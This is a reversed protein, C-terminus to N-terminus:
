YPRVYRKEVCYSASAALQLCATKAQDYSAQYNSRAEDYDTEHKCNQAAWRLTTGILWMLNTLHDISSASQPPQSERGLRELETNRDICTQFTFAQAAQPAVVPMQIPMLGCAVAATLMLKIKMMKGGKFIELAFHQCFYDAVFTISIV